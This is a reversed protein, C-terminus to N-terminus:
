ATAFPAPPSNSDASAAVSWCAGPLGVLAARQHEIQEESVARERAYAGRFASLDRQRYAFEVGGADISLPNRVASSV